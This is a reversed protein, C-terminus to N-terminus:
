AYKPHLQYILKDIESIVMDGTISKTCEFQKNTGKNVPCWNWDGPDLKHTNFCGTCVNKNIVRWTNSITETYDHSFGSILVIPLNIAWALWSLGSGIGIFFECSSMDSMLDKLSGAPFKNAGKPHSNGMYGDGEKSYIVVEYGLSILYDTVEQWGTTNNWYKSQATGHIAIGVKKRKEKQQFDLIPRIETFDLGLIDSATKQLPQNRFDKPCKDYNINDDEYFWGISYMAALNHAVEGPKIFKLSPYNKEFLDNNFTSVILECDHKKRFEEVYPFWAISDGLSSSELSIYVRKNKLTSKEHFIIQSDEKITVSYDQYYKKNLKTWMNGATITQYIVEGKENTFTIEFKRTSDANVEVFPGGVCHSTIRTIENKRNEKQNINQYFDILKSSFDKDKLFDYCYTKTIDNDVKLLSTIMHNNNSYFYEQLEKKDKIEEILKCREIKIKKKYSFATVIINENVPEFKSLKKIEIDELMQSLEDFISFHNKNFFIVDTSINSSIDEILFHNSVLPGLEYENTTTFKPLTGESYFELFSTNRILLNKDMYIFKSYNLETSLKCIEFINLPTESNIEYNSCEKFTSKYNITYKIIDFNSHKKFNCIFNNSIREEDEKSSIIICTKNFDKKYINKEHNFIECRFVQSLNSSSKIKKSDNSNLEFNQDVIVESFENICIIRCNEFMYSTQNVVVISDEIIEVKFKNDLM